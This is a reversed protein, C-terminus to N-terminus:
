GTWLAVSEARRGVIEPTDTFVRRPLARGGAGLVGVHGGIVGRGRGREADEGCSVVGLGVQGLHDLRHKRLGDAAPLQDDDVVPHGVLDDPDDVLVGVVPDPQQALLVAAEGARDVGSGRDSTAGVVGHLGAVAPQARREALPDPRHQGLVRLDVHEADVREGEEVTRVPRRAEPLAAPDGLLGPDPVPDLQDLHDAAGGEVGRSGDARRGPPRGAPEAAVCRRHVAQRHAQADQGGPVVQPHQGLLEAAVPHVRVVEVVRRRVPVGVVGAHLAREALQGGEGVIRLCQGLHTPRQARV